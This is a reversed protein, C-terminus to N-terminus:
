HPLQPPPRFLFLAGIVLAAGALQIPQLTQGLILASLLVAAIPEFNMFFGTRMAGLRVSALFVGIMGFAYFFPVGLLGSWGAASQPLVFDRSILSAAVFVTGATIAMRLTAPRTDRGHFFHGALMFVASWALASALALWVGKAQAASSDVNLALAVGGFAALLGVLRPWRFRDKGLLWSAFTTIAPWLYFILVALPVPILEIAANLCYNNICLPLGIAHAIVRERPTMALSVRAIRFYVLFLAITALTRITVVTLPDAGGQLALATCVGVM